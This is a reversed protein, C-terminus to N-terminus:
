KSWHKEWMATTDKLSILVTYLNRRGEKGVHLLICNLSVMSVYKFIIRIGSQFYRNGCLVHPFFHMWTPAPLSSVFWAISFQHFPVQFDTRGSPDQVEKLNLLSLMNIKLLLIAQPPSPASLLSLSDFTKLPFFVFAIDLLALWFLLDQVAAQWIARLARLGCCGCLLQGWPPLASCKHPKHPFGLVNCVAKSESCHSFNSSVSHTKRSTLAAPKDCSERQLSVNVKTVM